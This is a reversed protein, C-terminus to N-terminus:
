KGLIASTACLARLCPLDWLSIFDSFCIIWKWWDTEWVVENHLSQVYLWLREMWCLFYENEFFVTARWLHQGTFQLIDKHVSTVTTDFRRTPLIGFCSLLQMLNNPQKGRSRISKVLCPHSITTDMAKSRDKQSINYLMSLIAELLTQWKLNTNNPSEATPFDHKTTRKTRSSNKSYWSGVIPPKNARIYIETNELLIRMIEKWGSKQSLCNLQIVGSHFELYPVRGTLTRNLTKSMKANAKYYNSQIRKILVTDFDPALTNDRLQLLQLQIQYWLSLSYEIAQMTHIKQTSIKTTRLIREVTCLRPHLFQLSATVGIYHDCQCAILCVHLAFPFNLCLLGLLVGAVRVDDVHLSRGLCRHVDLVEEDFYTFLDRLELLWDSKMTSM